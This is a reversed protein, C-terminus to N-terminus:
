GEVALGDDSLFHGDTYEARIRNRAQVLRLTALRIHVNDQRRQQLELADAVAEGLQRQRAGACGCAVRRRGRAELHGGVHVAAKAHADLRVRHTDRGDPGVQAIGFQVRTLDGSAGNADGLVGTRTHLQQSTSITPAILAPRRHPDIPLVPALDHTHTAQAPANNCTEAVLM